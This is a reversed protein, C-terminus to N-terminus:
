ELTNPIEDLPYYRHTISNPRITVIRIGSPHTSLPMGVPGSSVLEIPGAQAYVNQHLHGSFIKIVGYRKFLALYKKRITKPMAFNSDKEDEDKLFWPHHQFIIIPSQRKYTEHLTSDIWLEQKYADDLARSPEKLLTSNLVVFTIGHMSFSYYDPGFNHRYSQLLQATPKHGIDHNGPLLYISINSDLQAAIEKFAVIQKKNEAENVLDGCIVVFEPHFRNAATIAKGFDRREAKYDRSLIYMGFQPDAMQIFSWSSDAQASLFQTTFVLCLIFLISRKLNM